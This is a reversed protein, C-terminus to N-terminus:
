VIFLLYKLLFGYLMFLFVSVGLLINKDKIM